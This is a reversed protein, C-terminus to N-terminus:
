RLTFKVPVAVWVMVPEGRARAPKFRWQRVAALAADDLKPISKTVVVDRVSGDRGLLVQLLVTGEVGARRAADPYFPPVREVVEPPEDAAVYEGLRPPAPDVRATTELSDSSKARLAGGHPGVYKWREKRVAGSGTSDAFRAELMRDAGPRIRLWGHRRPEGRDEIVGPARWVGVFEGREIWGQAEWASGAVVSVFVGGGSFIAVYGTPEAKSEYVGWYSKWSTDRAAPAPREEALAASVFALACILRIANKM